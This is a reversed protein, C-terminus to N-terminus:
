YEGMTLAMVAKQVHLRNEAVDYIISRTGSAVEDAVENGRDIPMPHIYLADNTSKMKESDCIWEKLQLAKEIEEDKHLQGDRYAQPSM